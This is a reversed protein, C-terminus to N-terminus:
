GNRTCLQLATKCQPALGVGQAVEGRNGVIGLIIREGTGIRQAVAVIETKDMGIVPRLIPKQIGYSIVELRSLAIGHAKALYDRVATSEPYFVGKWDKYSFGMTGLYWNLM